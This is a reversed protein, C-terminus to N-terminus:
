HHDVLYSLRNLAGLRIQYYSQPSGSFRELVRLYNMIHTLQDFRYQNKLM